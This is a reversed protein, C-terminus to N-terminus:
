AGAEVRWKELKRAEEMTDDTMGNRCIEQHHGLSERCGKQQKKRM